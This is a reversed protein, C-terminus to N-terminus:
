DSKVTRTTTAAQIALTRNTSLDGGGTLPSTTSITTTNQVKGADVQALYFGMNATLAQNTNQSVLTDQLRVIGTQATTAGNATVTITGSVTIPSGSQKLGEGTALSVSQVTGSALSADSTIGIQRVGTRTQNDVSIRQPSPNNVTVRINAM